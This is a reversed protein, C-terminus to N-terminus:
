AIQETINEPTRKLVPNGVTTEYDNALGIDPSKPRIDRTGPRRVSPDCAPCDGGQRVASDALSAGRSPGPTLRIVVM